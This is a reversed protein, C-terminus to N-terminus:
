QEIKGATGYGSYKGYKGYKGYYGYGYGYNGRDALPSTCVNNIVCGLLKAGSDQLVAAASNLRDAAAANQRVVLLSRDAFEMVCEVDPSASMPPLDLIVYDYLERCRNLMQEMGESDSLHTSSQLATSELLLHLGTAKDQVVADEVTAEGTIVAITGPGTHQRDLLKYCAPKRIDCDILLVREHKQALSLALNVAITSKGENELVSTVLLVKNKGDLRQEVKRRLKRIAEAFHFSTDPKSILISTKNHRLFTKLTKYKKEHLIEGLCRCDLKEEAERRSRVADRLYSLIALLACM